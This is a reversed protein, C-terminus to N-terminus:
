KGILAFTLRKKEEDNLVTNHKKEYLTFYLKLCATREHIYEAEKPGWISRSHLIRTIQYAATHLKQMQEDVPVGDPFTVVFGDNNKKM